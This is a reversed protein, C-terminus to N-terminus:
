DLDPFAAPLVAVPPQRAPETVAHDWRRTYVQLRVEDFDEGRFGELRLGAVTRSSVRWEVTAALHAGLGDRSSGDYGPNQNAAQLVPDTPFYDSPEEHLEQWNLGGEVRFTASDSHGRLDFVPGVSLFHDPSFYGGHGTTFHSLNDSYGLATLNGGLRALWGQGSAVRQWFGLGAQWQTNDEVLKGGVRAAAVNGYINRSDGGFSGEFYARNRTVGGWERGTVPDRAGALALLSDTVASRELGFGIPGRMGQLRIRLAGVVNSVVYSSPTNGLEMAIGSRPLWQALVAAGSDDPTRIAAPRSAFDGYPEGAAVSESAPAQADVALRFRGWRPHSSTWALQLQPVQFDAHGAPSERQRWALAADVHPVWTREIAQLMTDAALRDPALDHAISLAEPLRNLELLTDILQSAAGPAARDVALLDRLARERAPADGRLEALDARARLTAPHNPRLEDLVAYARAAANADRLNRATAFEQQMVQFRTENELEALPPDLKGSARAAEFHVLAERALGRRVALMALGAQADPYSPSGAPVDDFYMAASAEIGLDLCVYGMAASFRARDDVPLAQLGSPDQLGPIAARAADADVAALARVWAYRAWPDSPDSERAHTAAELASRYDGQSFLANSRQRWGAIDRPEDAPAALALTVFLAVTLSM